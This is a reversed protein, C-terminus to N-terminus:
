FTFRTNATWRLDNFSEEQASGGGDDLSLPWVAGLNPATRSAPFPFNACNKSRISRLRGFIPQLNRTTAFDLKWLGTVKPPHLSLIAPFNTPICGAQIAVPFRAKPQRRQGAPLM